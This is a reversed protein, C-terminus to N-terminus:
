RGAGDLLARLAAPDVDSTVFARGIGRALVFTLRGDRVKKDRGMAEILADAPFGGPRIATPTTPLGLSALHRRVREADGPPCLGLRASLDFALVMGCAVAEGHLLADGYGTLAELGHAFTHGLNLLARRGGSSEREDEAVIAAKALCSKVVAHRRAAADGALLEAGCRELWAFFDADGLLGYKVVEAYGARLERPPLTDLAGTDALVLRPQHFAGILNKGHRSNVGTKGGVASDVQALLSTPVQILDIGRLLIAAAFGALDGVVGGGFAVLATRREIGRGLLDELLDGLRALSKSAEGAPVTVVPADIDAGRLSALFAALHPTAALNADTVVIARPRSGRLVPRVLEGARGLLGAGILVDYGRGGGLGVRVREPPTAEPPNM